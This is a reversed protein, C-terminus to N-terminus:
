HNPSRKESGNGSSATSSPRNPPAGSGAGGPWAGASPPRGRPSPATFHAADSTHQITSPTRQPGPGAPPPLGGEEQSSSRARIGPLPPPPPGLQAALAPDYQNNELRSILREDEDGFDGGMLTPEGVIMVDQSALPMCHAVAAAAAAAAAAAQGAKSKKSSPPMPVVGPAAPAAASPGNQASLPTGAGARGGTSSSASTKRKRRKNSAKAGDAQPQTVNQWKSYLLHTLCDAPPMERFAKHRSMVEQMPELIECLRLFHIIANPLGSLTLNKTFPELPGGPGAPGPPPLGSHAQELQMLLVQRQILEMHARISFIWARFRLTEEVIHLILRGDTTVKGFSPKVHTTTQVANDCDLVLLNPSLQSERPLKLEYQLEVVGNDFFTRFFRPIISRGISYQKPQAAPDQESPPELRIVMRADDEFFESAFQDWWINDPQEPRQLLRKNLLHVRSELAMGFGMVGMLPPGGNSPPGMPMGPPPLPGGHHGPPPPPGPRRTFVATQNVGPPLHHAPVMGPHFGGQGGGPFSGGPSPPPGMMPAPHHYQPPGGAEYPFGLLDPDYVGPHPPQDPPPPKYFTPEGPGEEYPAPELATPM